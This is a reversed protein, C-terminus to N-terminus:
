ALSENQPSVHVFGHRPADIDAILLFPLRFFSRCLSFAPTRGETERRYGFLANSCLAIAGHSVHPGYSDSEV